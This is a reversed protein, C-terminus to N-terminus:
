VSVLNNLNNLNNLSNVLQEATFPVKLFDNAGLQLANDKYKDQELSTMIIVQIEPYTEKIKALLDLGNLNPMEIDSVVINPINEAIKQLAEEGDKATDVSYQEVYPSLLRTTLKRIMLSDDVLLVKKPIKINEAIEVIEADIINEDDNNKNITDVNEVLIEINNKDQNEQTTEFDTDLNTESNTESNTETVNETLETLLNNNTTESNESTEANELLNNEGFNNQLNEHFIYKKVLQILDLIIVIKGNEDIGCGGVGVVNALQTGVNKTILNQNGGLAGIAIALSLNESEDHLLIVSDGVTLNNESNKNSNENSNEDSNKNSNKNSNQKNLLTKLHCFNYEEEDFTLINQTNIEEILEDTLSVVHDIYIADIAYFPQNKRMKATMMSPTKEPSVMLVNSVALTLPLRLKFSSGVNKATHIEIQGGLNEIEKKVIDMGFGRGANTTVEGSDITSFGSKFMFEYLTAANIDAFNASEELWNLAKAKNFIRELDIGQGDDSLILTIRNSEQRLQLTIKGSSNKNLATRQEPSEIGHVIANRLMHELPPTIRALLTSDIKLNHDIIILQADKNESQCCQQVLLHLREAITAFPVIRINLLNQTLGKQTKAQNKLAKKANKVNSLLDKQIQQTAQSVNKTLENVADSIETQQLIDAKARLNHSQSKIQQMTESLDQLSNEMQEIEVNAITRATAIETMQNVFKDMSAANVAVPENALPSVILNNNSNSNEDSNNIILASSNQVVLNTNQENTTFNTELNTELNTDSNEQINNEPIDESQISQNKALKLQLIRNIEENSCLIQKPFNTFIEQFEQGVRIRLIITSVFELDNSLERLFDNHLVYLIIEENDNNNDNSNNNQSLIKIEETVIKLISELQHFYNGIPTIGALYSDGKLTHLERNIENQIDVNYSIINNKLNNLVDGVKRLKRSSESLYISFLKANINNQIEDCDVYFSNTIETLQQLLESKENSNIENSNITIKEIIEYNKYDCNNNNNNNNNNSSNNNEKIESNTPVNEVLNENNNEAIIDSEAENSQCALVLEQMLDNPINLNGDCLQSLQKDIRSCLKRIQPNKAKNPNAIAVIFDQTTNHWFQQQNDDNYNCLLQSIQQLVKHMTQRSHEDSNRIWSLLSQQFYARLKKVKNIIEQPLLNDIVSM